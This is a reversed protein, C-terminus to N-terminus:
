IVTIDADGSYLESRYIEDERSFALSQNEYVWYIDYLIRELDNIKRYTNLPLEPISPTSELTEFVTTLTRINGLIREYDPRSLIDTYGWNTKFTMGSIGYIEALFETNNEIRNLDNKNLAGKLGNLWEEKQENTLYKFGINEYTQVKLVDQSTRDFVPRVWM